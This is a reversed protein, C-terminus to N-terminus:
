CCVVHMRYPNHQQRPQTAPRTPVRADRGSGGRLVFCLVGCMYHTVHPATQKQKAPRPQAAGGRWVFVFCLVSCVCM